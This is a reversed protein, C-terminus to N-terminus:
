PEPPTKAGGLANCGHGSEALVIILEDNNYYIYLLDFKYPNNM